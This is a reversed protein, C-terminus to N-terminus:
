RLAARVLEHVEDITGRGDVHRVLGSRDYYAIVPKVQGVYWEYKRAVTEPSDDTRDRGTLRKLSTEIDFDLVVVRALERKFRPLNEELWDIDQQTRPTGDLIIPKEDPVKAFAEGVVRHVEEAPALKGENLMSAAKPDERLLAGSSLHVGDIDQALLDGQTSKGSGTPGILFILKGM